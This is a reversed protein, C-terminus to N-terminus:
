HKDQFLAAASPIQGAIEGSIVDAKKQLAIKDDGKAYPLVVSVAGINKGNQDKLVSEVEFRIGNENVELNPRGTNIVRMDDEDAKKGIRGINSAMIINDKHGPPTVHFALILMDPHRAMMDLVIKQGLTRDSFSPDYPYNETLNAPNSIHRRLDDRVARAALVLRDKDDGAKYNYVIGVAGIRTGSVDLLPIEAEFRIGTEDVERNETGKEIVRMDDEDAKKGIRGINSAIIGPDKNRPTAAHLAMIVIEPHKAMEMDVLHQAYSNTPVAPDIQAQDSLNKFHSIHRALVDRLETARKIGDGGKAYEVSLVGLHRRSADLLPLEVVTYAGDLKTVTKSAANPDVAATNAAGHSAVVKLPSGDDAQGWMALSIIDKHEAAARNVLTQAYSEGPAAHLQATAAGALLISMAYIVHRNM